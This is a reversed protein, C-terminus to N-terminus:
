NCCYQNINRTLVVLAATGNVRYSYPEQEECDSDSYCPEDSATWMQLRSKRLVDCIPVDRVIQVPFLTEFITAFCVSIQCTKKLLFHRNVNLIFTM